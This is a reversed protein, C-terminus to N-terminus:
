GQSPVTCNSVSLRMSPHTAPTLTDYAYLGSTMPTDVLSVTVSIRLASSDIRRSSSGIDSSSSLSDRLSSFYSPNTGSASRASANQVLLISQFKSIQVADTVNGSTSSDDM